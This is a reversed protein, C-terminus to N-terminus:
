WRTARKWFLGYVHALAEVQGLPIQQILYAVSVVSEVQDLGSGM